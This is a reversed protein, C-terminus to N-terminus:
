GSIPTAAPAGMVHADRLTRLALTLTVEAQAMALRALQEPTLSLTVTTVTGSRQGEMEVTQEAALVLSGHLTVQAMQEASRKTTAVSSLADGRSGTLVCGCDSYQVRDDGSVAVSHGGEHLVPVSRATDAVSPVLEGEVLPEGSVLPSRTVRGPLDWQSHSAGGPVATKPWSPMLGVHRSALADAPSMDSAPVALPRYALQEYNEQDASSSVALCSAIVIALLLVLMTALIVLVLEGPPAAGM